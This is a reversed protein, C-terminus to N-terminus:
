ELQKQHKTLTMTLGLLLWFLAGQVTVLIFGYFILAIFPIYIFIKANNEFTKVYYFGKWVIIIFIILISTLAFIGDEALIMLYSNQSSKQNYSRESRHLWHSVGMIDLSSYYYTYNGPGVGFFPHKEFIREGKQIQLKRMLLSKDREMINEKMRLTHAIKPSYDQLVDAMGHKLNKIASSDLSIFLIMIVPITLVFLIMSFKKLKNSGLSLLLILEIIVLTTGTRSGSFLIGMVFGLTILLVLPISFRKLIYYYALPISLVINYAIENPYFIIYFPNLTVYYIISIVITFFFVRSLKYFDFKYIWTKIFLALVVWYVYQM